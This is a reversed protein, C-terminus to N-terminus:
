GVQLQLHMVKDVVAERENIGPEGQGHIPKTGQDTEIKQPGEVWQSLWM